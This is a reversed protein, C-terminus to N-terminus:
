KYEELDAAATAIADEATAEGLVVSQVMDIMVDQFGRYDVFLPEPGGNPIGDIFPKWTPDEAVLEDVGPVPRLPTLGHVSEYAFQNEPNTLFRAFEIALDEYGTGNFVALSDTILLTGPGTASPGTPLPAVGWDIGENFRVREWPGSQLFALQEDNFLARLEASEYATAGPESVPVMRGLAALAEIAEPSDLTINGDEDIVSGNNTYLWNLFHHATSDFSKAILGYGSVGTEEAVAASMEYLEDWTTPPTEPDLGAAEMLGKNYYLAKTSFATPFGWQQGDFTVTDVIHPYYSAKEEETMPIPVILGNLALQKLTRSGMYALGVPDGAAALTTAKDQCEGWGVVEVEVSVGPHDAEFQEILEPYTEAIEDGCQIFRIVTDQAFASGIPLGAALIAVASAGALVSPSLAKM